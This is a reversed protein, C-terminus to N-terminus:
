KLKVIVIVQLSESKISKNIVETDNDTENDNISRLVNISKSSLSNEFKNLTKKKIPRQKLKIVDNVSTDLITELETGSETEYNLDIINNIIPTYKIKKKM